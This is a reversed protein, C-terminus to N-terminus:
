ALYISHAQLHQHMTQRSFTKLLVFARTMRFFSLISSSTTSTVGAVFNLTWGNNEIKWDVFGDNGFINDRSQLILNPIRSTTNNWIKLTANNGEIDVNNNFVSFGSVHPRPIPYNKFHRRVSNFFKNKM